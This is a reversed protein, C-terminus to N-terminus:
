NRKKNRGIKWYVWGNVSYGGAARAADTMNDYIKDGYLIGKGTKSDTKVIKALLINKVGKRRTEHRLVTGIRPFVHQIQQSV